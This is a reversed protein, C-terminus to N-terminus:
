AVRALVEGFFVPVRRPVKVLREGLRNLRLVRTPHPEFVAAAFTDSGIHALAGCRLVECGARRLSAEVEALTPSSALEWAEDFRRLADSETPTLPGSRAFVDKVYITGAPRVSRAAEAFVRDRDPSYGCSELFLAVDFAGDAFPLQHYDAHCASVRGGVEAAAIVDRALRAQVHSITVGAVRCGPYAAAIAVAPGGVGCGADLVRHGPRVGARRALLQASRDPDEPADPGAKLFGAQLTAGFASLFGESYEDYFAAVREVRSGFPSTKM